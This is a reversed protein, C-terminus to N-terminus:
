QSDTGPDMTYLIYASLTAGTVYTGAATNAKATFVNVTSPEPKKAGNMANTNTLFGSTSIQTTSFIYPLVGAVPGTATFDGISAAAGARLGGVCLFAGRSDLTGVQITSASGSDISASVSVGWKLLTAGKPIWFLFMLDNTSWETLVLTCSDAILGGM